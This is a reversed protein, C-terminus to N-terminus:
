VYNYGVPLGKVTPNKIKAKLKIKTKIKDWKRQVFYDLCFVFNM